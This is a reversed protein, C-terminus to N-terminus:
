QARHASATYTRCAKWFFVCAVERRSMSIARRRKPWIERPPFHVPGLTVRAHPVRDRIGRPLSRVQPRAGLQHLLDRCKHFPPGPSLRFRCAMAAHRLRPDVIQQPPLDRPKREIREHINRRRQPPLHPHTKPVRRSSRPKSRFWLLYTGALEQWTAAGQPRTSKLPTGEPYMLEPKATTGEAQKATISRTLAEFEPALANCERKVEPDALLRAKFKDFPITM